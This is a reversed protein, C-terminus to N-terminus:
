EGRPDKASAYDEYTARRIKKEEEHMIIGHELQLRIAGDLKQLSIINSKKKSSNHCQSSNPQILPRSLSEYNKMSAKM